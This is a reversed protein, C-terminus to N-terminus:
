GIKIASFMPPTQLVEGQFSSLKEEIEQLLPIYPSSFTVAGERDYTETSAGLFLTARYEKDLGMLSPAKRTYTRGILLGMVGTALPDLTGIHGIKKVGTLKRLYSILFFSTKGLPKNLLLLGEM